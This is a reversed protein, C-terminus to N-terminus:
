DEDLNSSTMLRLVALASPRVTGGCSSARASSTISHFPALEDRQEAARRRRPRDRRTPLLWRHRHDPEEVGCRRLPGRLTQTSKVLTEFVGAIDLAIVYRDYVAPGCILSISQRLHRGFQNTPLDGHDGRGAVERSAALAAVAVIGTTKLTASSGTLSPRTALRARGPPLRVPILKKLASNVAFRSSSSRSSTGPAARTAKITLGILGVASIVNLSASGAPRAMPSCIWTRLALVLRSISAAKAVKTRSRGSARMTLRSGKKFLRRAWNTLKADRRRPGRPM